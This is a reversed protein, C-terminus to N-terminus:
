DSDRDYDDDDQDRDRSSYRKEANEQETKCDICLQAVPRAELRKVGIAEGCEECEGYTKDEIKGLAYDIKKLLTSERRGIKAINAQSIELSAIDAPDGSGNQLEQESSQTLDMLHQVIKKKEDVLIAKFKDLDKKKLAAM